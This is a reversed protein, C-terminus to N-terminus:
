RPNEGECKRHHWFKWCRSHDDKWNIDKCLDANKKRSCLFICFLWYVLRWRIMHIFLPHWGFRTRCLTFASGSFPFNRLSPTPRSVCIVLEIYLCHNLVVCFASDCFLDVFCVSEEATEFWVHDFSDIYDVASAVDALRDTPSNVELAYWSHFSAM